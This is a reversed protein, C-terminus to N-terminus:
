EVRRVRPSRNDGDFELYFAGLAGQRVVARLSKLRVFAMSDDAIQWVQGNGLRIRQRARWGDFGEPLSSVIRDPGEVRADPKLGFRAEPSTAPSASPSVSPSVSPSMAPNVQPNGPAATTPGASAKAGALRPVERDYCALRATSEAIKQCNLVDDVQAWAPWACALLATVACRTWLRHHSPTM